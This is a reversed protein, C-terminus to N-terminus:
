RYSSERAKNQGAPCTKQYQRTLNTRLAYNASYKRHSSERPNDQGLPYMKQTQISLNARLELTPNVATLEHMNEFYTIIPKAM